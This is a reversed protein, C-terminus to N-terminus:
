RLKPDLADRIADGLLVFALVTACLFVTPFLTLYFAQRIFDGSESIAVGWSIVPPRLGVGLFSLTAEASVFTAILLSGYVIIPALANPLLHRFLIRMPGAGVVRAANVYDANKVAYVASRAIRAVMPWSLVTLTAIVLMMITAPGADSQSGAFTSLIIIAGLVFPLGLLIEGGRSILADVWGGRYAAVMGLTGGLLTTLVTATLGVVISARAGYITRAYVDRGQRDTGFWHESSPPEMSLSLDAWQPDVRTFLQPVAAMLVFVFILGASVWFIPRHKLEDWADGWLGRPAEGAASTASAPESM